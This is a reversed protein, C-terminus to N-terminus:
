AAAIAKGRKDNPRNGGGDRSPLGSIGSPQRQRDRVDKQTARREREQEAFTRCYDKGLRSGTPARRECIIRRGDNHTLIANVNEQAQVLELKDKDTFDKPDAHRALIDAVRTLGQEVQTREAQSVFEYHGGAEMQRRIALAQDDFAARSDATLVRETEHKAAHAVGAAAAFALVLSAAIQRKM